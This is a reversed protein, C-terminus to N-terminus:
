AVVGRVKAFARQLLVQPTPDTDRVEGPKADFYARTRALEIEAKDLAVVARELTRSATEAARELAEIQAPSPKHEESAPTASQTAGAVAARVLEGVSIRRQKALGTLERKQERTVL